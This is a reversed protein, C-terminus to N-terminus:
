PHVPFPGSASGPPAGYPFQVESGLGGAVPRPGIIWTGSPPTITYQVDRVFNPNPLNYNLNAEYSSFSADSAQGGAFTNPAVSGNDVIRSPLQSSEFRPYTEGATTQRYPSIEWGPTVGAAAPATAAPATAANWLGLGGAAIGATSAVGGSIVTGRQYWDGVPQGATDYQLSFNNAGSYVAGVNWSTLAYSGAALFGDSQYYSSVNHGYSSLGNVYTSPASMGALEDVLSGAAGTIYSGGASSNNYNDLYGGIGRLAAGAVGGNYIFNATGEICRGSPDFGMIPEGGCFSYYNPDRENWAPDSEM